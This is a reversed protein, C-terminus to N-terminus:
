PEQIVDGSAIRALASINFTVLTPLAFAVTKKLVNRRSSQNLEHSESGGLLEDRNLEDNMAM